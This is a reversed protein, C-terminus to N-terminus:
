KRRDAKKRSSQRLSVVESREQKILFRLATLTNGARMMDGCKMGKSVCNRGPADWPDNWEDTCVVPIKEACQGCTQGKEVCDGIEAKPEFRGEGSACILREKAYGAIM